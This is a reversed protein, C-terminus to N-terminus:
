GESAELSGGLAVMLQRVRAQLDQTAGSDAIIGRLTEVAADSEGARLQAIATQELALLRFPAGPVTLPELRDIVQQPPASDQLLMAAKLGALERYLAPLSGDASVSELAELTQGQVAEGELTDAALMALLARRAGDADIELLAARRADPTELNLAAVIADGFAQATLRSQYRQWEIWAAAGVLVVVALIAIWGYRKLLGYLRDRRVEETVEEIFGDSNSM